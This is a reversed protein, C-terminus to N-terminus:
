SAADGVEAPGLQGLEVPREVVEVGDAAVVSRRQPDHLLVARSSLRVKASSVSREFRM